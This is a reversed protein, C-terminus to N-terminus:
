HMHTGQVICCFASNCTTANLLTRMEATHMRNCKAPHKSFVRHPNPNFVVTLDFSVFQMRPFYDTGSQLFASPYVSEDCFPIWTNVPVQPPSAIWCTTSVRVSQVCLRSKAMLIYVAALLRLFSLRVLVKNLNLCNMKIRHNDM